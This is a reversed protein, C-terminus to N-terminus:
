VYQINCATFVEFPPCPLDANACIHRVMSEVATCVPAETHYHGAAILNIDGYPADCLHHYRLEGTVYTDAGALIALGIDDDGAGGLVAVRRVPRGADSFAVTPAGLTNKVLTAFDALTMTDPLDGVRGIPEHAANTADGFPTTSQLGLLRARVDNVGGRVTDLRTHFSMVAISEKALRVIKRTVTDHGDVAKVGHFIMPHHAIIVNYGREAAVRVADETADLAFLIGRVPANQDPCVMLGDNDGALSLSRPILRELADYLERVTLTAHTNM